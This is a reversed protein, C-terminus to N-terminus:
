KQEGHVDGGKEELMGLAGIAFFNLHGCKKCVIVGAPITSGISIEDINEGIIVKAVQSSVTFTSGGCFPCPPIAHGKTREDLAKLFEQSEYKRM